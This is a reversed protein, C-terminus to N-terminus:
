SSAAAFASATAGVGGVTRSLEPGPTGLGVGIRASFATAARPLVLPRLSASVVAQGVTPCACGCASRSIVCVRGAAASLATCPGRGCVLLSRHTIHRSSATPAPKATYQPKAAHFYQTARKSAFARLNDDDDDVHFAKNRALSHGLATTKQHHRPAPLAAAGLGGSSVLKILM